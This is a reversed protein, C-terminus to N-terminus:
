LAIGGKEINAAVFPIELHISTGSGKGEEIFLTGGLGLIRQKMNPLGIGRHVSDRKGMSSQIGIGDDQITLLMKDERILLELQINSCKGHRIANGCAEALTRYLMEKMAPRLATEDGDLKVDIQIGNLRATDEAFTRIRLFFPSEGKKVSSLHFIAERLEKMTSQATRSLFSYEAHLEDKPLRHHEAQLRHLAYVIGFVRQSVSDHIENAIRNQEEVVLLQNRTQTVHMQELLMESVDGLFRFPQLILAEDSAAASFKIGMYGRHMSTRIERVLFEEEGIRVVCMGEQFREVNKRIEQDSRATMNMFHTVQEKMDTLLFFAEESQTCSVLSKAVERTILESNTAEALGDMVEYLSMIHHLTKDYKENLTNLEQNKQMLERQKGKLLRAKEDMEKMLRSFLSAMLTILLCVLFVYSHEEMIEGIRVESFYAAIATAGSVYVTLVGLCFVPSVFGAAILVPNIAYWIFPSTIGGTPILLLTLGLIETLVIWKLMAPQRFYRNVLSSVIWAAMSLTAIVGSKMGISSPPGLFFFFLSTLLLSLVRFLLSVRLMGISM